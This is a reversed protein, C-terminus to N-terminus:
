IENEREKEREKRRENKTKMTQRRRKVQAVVFLKTPNFIRFKFENERSSLTKFPNSNSRIEMTLLKHGHENERSSSEEEQHSWPYIGRKERAFPLLTEAKQERHTHIRTRINNYEGIREGIESSRVFSRYSVLFCFYVIDFVFHGCGFTGSSGGGGLLGEDGDRLNGGRLNIEGHFRVRLLEEEKGRKGDDRVPEGREERRPLREPLEQHRNKRRRADRLLRERLPLLDKGSKRESPRDPFDDRSRRRLFRGLQEALQVRERHRVEHITAM